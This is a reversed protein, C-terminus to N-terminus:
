GHFLEKYIEILQKEYSGNKNKLWVKLFNIAIKKLSREKRSDASRFERGSPLFDQIVPRIYDMFAKGPFEMRRPTGVLVRDFEKKHENYIGCTDCSKNSQHSCLCDKSLLWCPKQKMFARCELLNPLSCNSIENCTSFNRDKKVYSPPLKAATKVKGLTMDEIISTSFM